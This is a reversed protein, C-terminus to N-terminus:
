PGILSDMWGDLSDCKRSM